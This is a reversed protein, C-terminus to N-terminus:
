HAIFLPDFDNNYGPGPSHGLILTSQAICMKEKKMWDIKSLEIM